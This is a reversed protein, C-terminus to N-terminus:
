KPLAKFVATTDDFPHDALVVRFPGAEPWEKTLRDAEKQGWDRDAEVYRCYIIRDKGIVFTAASM